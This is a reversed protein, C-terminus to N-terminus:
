GSSEPRHQLVHESANLGTSITHIWNELLKMKVWCWQSYRLRVHKPRNSYTHQRSEHRSNLLVSNKEKKVEICNIKFNCVGSTSRYKTQRSEERSLLTTEMLNTLWGQLPLLCVFCILNLSFARPQTHIGKEVSKETWKAQQERITIESESDPRNGTPHPHVGHDSNPNLWTLRTLSLQTSTITLTTTPNSM